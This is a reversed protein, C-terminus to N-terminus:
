DKFLKSPNLGFEKKFCSTFYNPDTFGTLYAAESVRIGRIKILEYAKKLRTTRIYNNPTYGTLLKIKRNLQTRSISFHKSLLDINLEENSINKLIFERLNNVFTIETTTLNKYNSELPEIGLFREQVKKRNALLSKAIADLYQIEFPKTVYSDAGAAFGEMKQEISSKATLMIIPIHSTNFNEKVKKSFEFGDMEPMEVDTIILNPEKEELLKLGGAGTSSHCVKYANSFHSILYEKLEKDDEVILIKPLSYKKSEGTIQEETVPQEKAEHLEPSYVINSNLNAAEWKEEERYFKEEAPFFLTFVTGKGPESDVHIEGHHIKVLDNVISLGIGSSEFNINESERVQYFRNFIKEKEKESFGKGTDGVEIKLFQDNERKILNTELWIKGNEGTFKIANALLNWLIKEIKKVDIFVPENLNFQISFNINLKKCEIKFSEFVNEIVPKLDTLKTRLPLQNQTIRRFDVLDSILKYLRAANRKAVDLKKIQEKKLNNSQLLDNIPASILTLPTKLDHSINTFFALKKETIEHETKVKYQSIEIEKKLQIRNAYIRFILVVIFVIFIFYSIFAIWTLYWPPLIQIEITTPNENWVNSKNTSRVQFEYKGPSLNTYTTENNAGLYIWNKELGVLRYEFNNYKPLYNDRTFFTITFSNRKFPLKIKKTEELPVKLYKENGPTKISQNHFNIDSIIVESKSTDAVLKEPDILTFGESNGFIIKNDPTKTSTRPLFENSALGHRYNFIQIQESKMDFRCLGEITSIWLIHDDVSEIRLLSNTPFGQETTWKDFLRGDPSMRILGNAQTAFWYDGNKDHYFDNLRFTIRNNINPAFNELSNKESNYIFIGNNRILVVVEGFQNKRVSNVQFSTKVQGHFYQLVPTFRESILDFKLLSKDRFQTGVLLIDDNYNFMLIIRQMENADETCPNYTNQLKLNKSYKAMLGDYTSILISNDAETIATVKSGKIQRKLKASNVNKFKNKKKEWKSFGYNTGFYYSDGEVFVSIGEKDILSNSNKPNPIFNLFTNNEPLLCILGAGYTSIWIAGNMGPSVDYVSNSTIIKEQGYEKKIQRFFSFNKDLILIGNGDTALWFQNGIKEIDMISNRNEIDIKHVSKNNDIRFLTGNRCAVWLNGDIKKILSVVKGKLYVTSTGLLKVGENGKNVWIGEDTVTFSNINEVLYEKPQQNVDIRLLRNVLLIYVKGDFIKMDKIYGEHILSFSDALRNYLYIGRDSGVWLRNNEDVIIKNIFRGKMSKYSVFNYGDFRAIGNGTGVWGYGYNDTVFCKVINRPLGEKGTYTIVSVKENASVFVNFLFVSLLFLYIRLVIKGNRLM